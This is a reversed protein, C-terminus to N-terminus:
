TWLSVELQRFPLLSNRVYSTEGIFMPSLLEVQMYIYRLLLMNYAM